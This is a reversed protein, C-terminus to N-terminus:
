RINSVEVELQVLKANMENHSNKAQAYKKSLEALEKELAQLKAKQRQRDILYIIWLIVVLVLGMVSSDFAM